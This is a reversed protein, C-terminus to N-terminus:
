EAGLYNVVHYEAHDNAIASFIDLSQSEDMFISFVALVLVVAVFTPTLRWVWSFWPQGQERKERIRTMLRTEFFEEVASTDLRVSRAEAFLCDLRRGADDKM